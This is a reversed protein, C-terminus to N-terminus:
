DEPRALYAKAALGCEDLIGGDEDISDSRITAEFGVLFAEGKSM